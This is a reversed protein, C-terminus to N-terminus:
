KKTEKQATATPPSAKPKPAVPKFSESGVTLGESSLRAAKAPGIGNVRSIFDEWNKFPASKRQELIVKTTTPGLGKIGDLDSESAKNVDTAAMGLTAAFALAITTLAKKLM